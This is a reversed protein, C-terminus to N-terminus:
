TTVEDGNGTQQRIDGHGARKTAQLHVGHRDGSGRRFPAAAGALAIGATVAPATLEALRMRSGDLGALRALMAGALAAAVGVSILVWAPVRGRSRTALAAAGGLVSGVVLATAIGAITM